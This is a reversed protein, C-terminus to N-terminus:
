EPLNVSASLESTLSGQTDGVVGSTLSGKDDGIM